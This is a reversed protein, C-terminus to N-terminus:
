APRYEPLIALASVYLTAGLLVPAAYIERKMLLTQRGVLVDRILGGGIATVIGLLIPALPRAFELGWVKDATINESPM